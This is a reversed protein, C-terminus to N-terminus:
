ALSGSVAVLCRPYSTEVVSRVFLKTGGKRPM